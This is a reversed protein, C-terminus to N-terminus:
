EHEIIALLKAVVVEDLYRDAHGWERNLENLSLAARAAVIAQDRDGAALQLSAYDAQNSSNTPYEDVVHKMDQVAQQLLEPASDAESMAANLKSRYLYGLLGKSDAGILDDCAESVQVFENRLRIERLSDTVTLQAFRGVARLFEYALVQLKQQRSQVALPDIRIAEDFAVMAANVDGSQNRYEAVAIQSQSRLVPVLGFWLTLVVIAGMGGGFSRAYIRRSTPVQGESESQWSCETMAYLIFIVLGVISIHLGGAGLLHVLVCLLAAGPASAPVRLSGRLATVAVCACLPVLLFLNESAFFSSSSFDWFAGGVFWRWGTYVLTGSVVVKVLPVIPGAPFEPQTTQFREESRAAFFMTWFVSVFLLCIAVFGVVGASSWADFFINHPDLIEESSEAVKHALYAQRFNGPGAGFVPSEAIVGTAGIWYFLRYQLSKPAEFLVEQDIAGTAFGLIGSVVLCTGVLAIRRFWVTFGRNRQQLFLAIMGVGCGVWATRSKTLLLCYGVTGFFMAFVLCAAISRSSGERYSEGLSASMLVIMVALIGGLTNALAFTAMPESSSLLRNEFLERGPGDLPVGMRQLQSRFASAELSGRASAESIQSRQQQYWEAQQGYTVHHQVIGMVSIGFGLAVILCIIAQFDCEKKIVQRTLWWVAGIATWEFALNLAARRDGEVQFVHWTSLWFGSVLLIAPLGNGFRLSRRVLGSDGAVSGINWAGFGAVCLWAVSWQLGDGNIAGESPWLFSVTLLLCYFFTLKSMFGRCNVESM